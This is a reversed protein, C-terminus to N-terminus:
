SGVREHTVLAWLADPSGAGRLKALFAQDRLARSVRALAKLHAAGADTPSLMAFMLDVPEGDVADWGVPRALRLLAGAIAPIGAARGHPIAVGHGFGTTGLREREALADVVARPDTGTARALAAGAAALAAKRGSAPVATLVADPQLLDSLDTM